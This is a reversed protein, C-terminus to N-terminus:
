STRATPRPGLGYKTCLNNVMDASWLPNSCSVAHEGFFSGSPAIQAVSHDDMFMLESYVDAADSMKFNAFVGATYRTDPRQFYNIPGFNFADNAAYPRIANGAGIICGADLCADIVPDM